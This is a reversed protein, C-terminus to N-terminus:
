FCTGLRDNVPELIGPNPCEEAALSWEDICGPVISGPACDLGLCSIAEATALNLCIARVAAAEGLAFFTPLGCGELDFPPVLTADCALESAFGLSEFDCSCAYGWLFYSFDVYQRYIGELERRSM